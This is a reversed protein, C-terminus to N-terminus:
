PLTRLRSPLLTPSTPSFRFKMTRPVSEERFLGNAAGACHVSKTRPQLLSTTQTHRKSAPSPAGSPAHGAGGCGSQARPLLHAPSPRPKPYCCEASLSLSNTAAGGGGSGHDASGEPERLLLRRRRGAIAPKEEEKEERQAM